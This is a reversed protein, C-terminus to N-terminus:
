DGKKEKYLCHEPCYQCYGNGYKDKRKCINPPMDITM